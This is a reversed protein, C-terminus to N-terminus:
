PVAGRRVVGNGGMYNCSVVCAASIIMSCVYIIFVVAILYIYVNILM